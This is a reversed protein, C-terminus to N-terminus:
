QLISGLMVQIDQLEKLNAELKAKLTEMEKEHKERMIEIEMESRKVYDEDMKKFQEKDGSM